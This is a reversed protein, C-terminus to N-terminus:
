VYADSPFIHPVKGWTKGIQMPFCFDAPIKGRLLDDRYEPRVHNNQDLPKLCSSNVNFDCASGQADIGDLLYICNRHILFHSEPLERKAWNNASLYGPTLSDSLVEIRKTVLTGLLDPAKTASVITEKTTWREVDPHAMDGDLSEKQYVWADGPQLPYWSPMVEEAVGFTRGAIVLGVILALVGGLWIMTFIRSGRVRLAASFLRPM